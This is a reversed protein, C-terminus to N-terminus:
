DKLTQTLCETIKELIEDENTIIIGEKLEEQYLGGKQYEQHEYEVNLTIAITETPM